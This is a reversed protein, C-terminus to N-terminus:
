VLKILKKLNLINYYIIQYYYLIDPVFNVFNKAKKKIKGSKTPVSEKTCIQSMKKRVNPLPLIFEQVERGGILVSRHLMSSLYDM